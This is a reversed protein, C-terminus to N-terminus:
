SRGIAALVLPQSPSVRSVHRALLRINGASHRRARYSYAQSIATSPFAIEGADYCLLPHILGDIWAPGVSNSAIPAAAIALMDLFPHKPREATYLGEAEVGTIYLLGFRPVAIGQRNAVRVTPPVTAATRSRLSHQQDQVYQAADVFANYDRAPIRLREGPLVRRM